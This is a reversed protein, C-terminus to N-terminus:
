IVAQLYGPHYTKKTTIIIQSEKQDKEPEKEQTSCVIYSSMTVKYKGRLITQDFNLKFEELNNYYIEAKTLNESIKRLFIILNNGIEITGQVQKTSTGINCL